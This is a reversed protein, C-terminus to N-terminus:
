GIQDELDRKRIGLRAAIDQLLGNPVGDPSNHRGTRIPGGGGVGIIAEDGSGQNVFRYGQRSAWRDFNRWRIM